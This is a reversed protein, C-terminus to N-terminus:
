GKGNQNNESGGSESRKADLLVQLLPCNAPRFGQPVPCRPPPKGSVCDACLRAMEHWIEIETKQRSKWISWFRLASVWLGAVLVLESLWAHLVSSVAVSGFGDVAGVFGKVLTERENM